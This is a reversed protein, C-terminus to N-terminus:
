SSDSQIDSEAFVKGVPLGKNTLDHYGLAGAKDSNDFIGIWWTDPRLKKGKPVFSLNADTGWVPAFDRHVQTQVATVAKKIQADKLVTCENVIEINIGAM